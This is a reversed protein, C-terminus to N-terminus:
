HFYREVRLFIEYALRVDGLCYAEIDDVRGARWLGLVQSGEMGPPWKRLGLLEAVVDLRVADAREWNSLIRMVDFHSDPAYPRLPLGTSPPVGLYVSRRLLYPLDFALGNYTVFRWDRGSRVVDWFAELLHREDEVARATLAKTELEGRGRGDHGMGICIVHGFEPRLGMYRELEIRVAAFAKDEMAALFDDLRPGGGEPEGRRVVREWVYEQIKRPEARLDRPITEIDLVFNV